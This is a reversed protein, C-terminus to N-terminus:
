GCLIDIAVPDPTLALIPKVDSIYNCFEYCSLIEYLGKFPIIKVTVNDSIM